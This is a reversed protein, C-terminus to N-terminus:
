KRRGASTSAVGTKSLGRLDSACLKAWKIQQLALSRSFSEHIGEPCRQGNKADESACASAWDRAEEWAELDVALDRLTQM